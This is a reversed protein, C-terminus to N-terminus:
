APKCLASSVIGLVYVTLGSPVSAGGRISSVGTGAASCPGVMMRGWSLTALPLAKALGPSSSTDNAAVSDTPVVPSPCQM